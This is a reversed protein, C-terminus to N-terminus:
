LLVLGPILREFYIKKGLEKVPSTFLHLFKSGVCKMTVQQGLICDHVPPWLRLVKM